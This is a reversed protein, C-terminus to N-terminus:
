VVVLQGSPDKFTLSETIDHPVLGRITIPEPASGFDDFGWAIVTEWSEDDLQVLYGPQAPLVSIFRM